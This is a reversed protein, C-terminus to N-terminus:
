PAVEFTALVPMHDSAPTEIVEVPFPTLDGTHWIWDIRKVPDTYSYTYGPGAGAGAWADRLGAQALMEMEPSGPEANMDGLLITSAREGWFQVLASVQEQRERSDPGLQHLHTDIVLLPQPGGVDIRAWLYGRGILTGVRPLIGWGSELVPYRSLIANGWIPEETGKFLYPMDLRRSLWTPMDLYGDM